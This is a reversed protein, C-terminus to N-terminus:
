CSWDVKLSCVGGPFPLTGYPNFNVTFYFPAEGMRKFFKDGTVTYGVMESFSLSVVGPTIKACLPTSFSDEDLFAYSSVDGLGVYLVHYSM